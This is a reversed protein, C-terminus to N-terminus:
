PEQAPSGAGPSGISTTPTWSPPDSAPFSEESTEEVQDRARGAIDIRGGRNMPDPPTTVDAQPAHNAV